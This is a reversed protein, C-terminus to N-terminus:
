QRESMIVRWRKAPARMFDEEVSQVVGAFTQVRGEETVGKIEVYEKKAVAATCRRVAVEGSVYFQDM